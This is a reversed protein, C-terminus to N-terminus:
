LATSGGSVGGGSGPETTWRGRWRGFEYFVVGVSLLAFLEATGLPSYGFDKTTKTFVQMREKLGLPRTSGLSKTRQNSMGYLVRKSYFDSVHCIELHCVSMEPTYGVSASGLVDVTNRVFVTDAGRLIERFLGIEGFLSRRVAMNNTYGFYIEPTDSSFVYDAVSTDYDSLRRLTRKPAEYKRKGLVIQWGHTDMSHQIAALWKPGPICDPDIFALIQGRAARIGRNRASYSGRKSEHLVTVGEYAELIELSGDTSGNDVVIIEYDDPYDQAIVADLFRVLCPKENFVPAIISIQM